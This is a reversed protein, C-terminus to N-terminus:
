CQDVGGHSEDRWSQSERVDGGRGAAFESGQGTLYNLELVSLRLVTVGSASSVLANVRQLYEREERYWESYMGMWDVSVELREWDGKWGPIYTDNVSHRINVLVKPRAHVPGPRGDKFRSNLCKQMAPKYKDACEDERFIARTRNQPDLHSFRFSVSLHVKNYGEDHHM